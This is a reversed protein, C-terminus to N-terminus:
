SRNERGKRIANRVGFVAAILGALAVLIASIIKIWDPTTLLFDRVQDLPKVQVDVTYNQTTSRLPVCEGSGTCGEVVTTLTLARRGGARAVVQWSWTTVSGPTVEQSAQSQPTIEFGVGSLEARMFRGVLPQFEVTQGPLDGVVEGPTTPARAVHSTEDTNTGTSAASDPAPAATPPPASIALQLLHMEGRRMPNPANFAAMGRTANQALQMYTQCDEPSVRRAVEQCFVGADAPSSSDAAASPAPETAQNPPPAQSAQGCSALLLLAALAVFRNRQM